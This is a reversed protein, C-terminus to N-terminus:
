LKYTRTWSQDNTRRVCASIVYFDANTKPVRVFMAPSNINTQGVYIAL